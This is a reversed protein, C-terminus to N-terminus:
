HSPAEKFGKDHEEAEGMAWGGELHHHIVNELVEDILAIHHNVHVVDQHIGVHNLMMSLHGQIHELLM